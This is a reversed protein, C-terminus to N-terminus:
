YTICDTTIANIGLGLCQKMLEADDITWACLELGEAEIRKIIEGDNEFNVKKGANFDLGCNDITKAIEIAEDDLKHCLYFMKADTIKRLEILNNEEFSIYVVEVDYKSAIDLLEGYYETNNKSKLEVYAAMSYKECIQLYEEFTCVKLNPYSAINVGNDINHAMLEDYTIKEISKTFDYMRFTIGDHDIVWVGDATRYVDCEAGYFGAKGAEEFAPATNEPAVGRFGRHAIIKTEDNAFDASSVIEYDVPTVYWHLAYLGGGLIAVFLFLIASLIIIVIKKKKTM